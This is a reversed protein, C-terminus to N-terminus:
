VRRSSNRQVSTARTIRTSVVPADTARSMVAFPGNTGSGAACADAFLASARTVCAFAHVVAAFFKFSSSGTKRADAFCARRATGAGLAVAGNGEAAVRTVRTLGHVREPTPMKLGREAGFTRTGLQGEYDRGWAMVTGDDLVAYSAETNAAVAIAKTPLPIRRPAAITMPEALGLQGSRNEGWGVVSGDSLLALVHLSAAVQTVTVAPQAHLTTFWLAVSALSAALASLRLRTMRPM